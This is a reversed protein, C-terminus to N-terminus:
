KALIFFPFKPPPISQPYNPIEPPMYGTIEMLQVLWAIGIYGYDDTLELCGAFVNPFVRRIV